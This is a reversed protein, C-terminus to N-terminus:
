LLSPSARGASIGSTGNGGFVAAEVQLATNTMIVVVEAGKASEAIDSSAKGGAKIFGDMTELNVDHGAVEIGTKQIAVAM